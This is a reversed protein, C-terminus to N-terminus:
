SSEWAPDQGQLVLHPLGLLKWYNETCAHCTNEEALDEHPDYGVDAKPIFGEAHDRLHLSFVRRSLTLGITATTQFRRTPDLNLFDGQRLASFNAKSEKTTQLGDKLSFTEAEERGVSFWFVSM